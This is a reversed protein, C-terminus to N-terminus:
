NESRFKDCQEIVFNCSRIIKYGITWIPNMNSPNNSPSTAQVEDPIQMWTYQRSLFSSSSTVLKLDDATLDAYIINYAHFYDTSLLIYIGNMYDSLSTLDKVYEQRIITTEDPVSLFNKKCSIISIISIMSIAFFINKVLLKM